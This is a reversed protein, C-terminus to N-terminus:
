SRAQPHYIILTTQFQCSVHLGVYRQGDHVDHADYAIYRIQKRYMLYFYSGGGGFFFLM